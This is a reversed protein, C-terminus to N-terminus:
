LKPELIGLLPDIQVNFENTFSLFFLAYCLHQIDSEYYTKGNFGGNSCEYKMLSEKLQEEIMEYFEIKVINKFQLIRLTAGLWYSYCSDPKKGKKGNLEKVRSTLWNVLNLTDCKFLSDSLGLCIVACYTFGAQAESGIMRGFGGEFTQCSLVFDININVDLDFIKSLIMSCSLSRLDPVFTQQPRILQDEITLDKIIKLIKNKLAEFETESLYDLLPITHAYLTIINHNDDPLDFLKNKSKLIYEQPIEHGLISFSMSIWYFLWTDYTQSLNVFKKDFLDAIYKLHLSKKIM